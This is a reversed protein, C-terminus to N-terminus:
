NGRLFLSGIPLQLGLVYVFLVYLCASYVAAAITGKLPPGRFLVALAAVELTTAAFFGLIPLAWAYLVFTLVALAGRIWTDRRPWDPDPKPRAALAVGAIAFLAAVLFPLAKPGIPDTLFRVSFTRAELAVLAAAIILVVGTLRDAPPRTM